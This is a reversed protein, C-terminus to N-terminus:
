SAAVDNELLLRDLLGELRYLLVMVLIAGVWIEPGAAFLVLHTAVAMFIGALTAIGVRRNQAVSVYGLAAGVLGGLAAFPSLVLLGGLAPLVGDGRAGRFGKILVDGLVAALIVWWAAAPSLSADDLGISPMWLHALWPAAVLTPVVGKLIRLLWAVSKVARFRETPLAGWIFAFCFVGVLFWGM